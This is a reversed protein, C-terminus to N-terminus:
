FIIDDDQQSQLLDAVMRSPEAHAQAVSKKAEDKERDNKKKGQM